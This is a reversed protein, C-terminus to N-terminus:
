PVRLITPAGFEQAIADLAIERVAAGGELDPLLYVAWNGDQPLLTYVVGEGFAEYDFLSDRGPGPASQPWPPPQGAGALVWRQRPQEQEGVEVVDLLLREGDPHWRVGYIALGEPAAMTMTEGLRLDHVRVVNTALEDGAAEPADPNGTTLYALRTGGPSLTPSVVAEGEVPFLLKGSGSEPSLAYIGQSTRGPAAPSLLMPGSSPWAFPLLPLTDALSENTAVTASEGGGVPIQDVRWAAEDLPVGEAVQVYALRESDDSPHLGIIRYGQEPLVIFRANPEALNWSAIGHQSGDADWVLYILYRGDRTAVMDSAEQGENLPLPIRTVVGNPNLSAVADGRGDVGVWITDPPLAPKPTPSPAPTPEATPSPTAQGTARVATQTPSAPIRREAVPRSCAPMLSLCVILAVGLPAAPNLAVTSM